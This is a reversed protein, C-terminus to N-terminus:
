RGGEKPGTVPVGAMLLVRAAGGQNVGAGPAGWCAALGALRQPRDRGALCRM